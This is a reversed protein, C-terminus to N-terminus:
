YKNLYIIPLGKPFPLRIWINRHKFGFAFSLLIFFEVFFSWAFLNTTCDKITPNIEPKLYPIPPELIVFWQSKNLLRVKVLDINSPFWSFWSSRSMQCLILSITFMYLMFQKGLNVKLLCFSYPRLGGGGRLHKHLLQISVGIKCWLNSTLFSRLLLM